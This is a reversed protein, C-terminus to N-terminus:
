QSALILPTDEGDGDNIDVGARILLEVIAANGRQAAVQIPRNRGPVCNHPSVGHKLLCDAVKLTGRRCALTLPTMREKSVVFGFRENDEEVKIVKGSADFTLIAVKEANEGRALAEAVEAATTATFLDSM